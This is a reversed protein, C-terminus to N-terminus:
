PIRLLELHWASALVFPPRDDGARDADQENPGEDERDPRRQTPSERGM